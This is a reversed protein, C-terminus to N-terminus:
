KFIIEEFTHLPYKNKEQLQAIENLSKEENENLLNAQTGFDTLKKKKDIEKSMEKIENLRDSCCCIIQM